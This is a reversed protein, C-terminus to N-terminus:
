SLSQRIEEIEFAEIMDGPQFDNYGEVGVGCELPSAV